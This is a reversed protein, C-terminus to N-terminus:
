PRARRLGLFGTRSPSTLTAARPRSTV